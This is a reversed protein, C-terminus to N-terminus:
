LKGRAKAEPATSPAGGGRNTGPKWPCTQAWNDRFADWDMSEDESALVVEETGPPNDLACFFDALPSLKKVSIPVQRFSEELVEVPVVRGTDKARNKARAFVAERPATVHLIAIKLRPYKERLSAFYEAYWEHDKLSGDVLVNYGRELAAAAVIETVYGAERHTLEGARQPSQSAYLHYEPFHSRIEDPDVIIYSSLPFLGRSALQKM